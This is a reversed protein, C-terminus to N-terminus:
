IIREFEDSDFEKYKQQYIASEKKDKAKKYKEKFYDLSILKYLNNIESKISEKQATEEDVSLFLEGYKDFLEKPLNKGSIVKPDFEEILRKLVPTTIIRQVNANKLLEPSTKLLLSIFREEKTEQYGKSNQSQPTRPTNTKAEPEMKEVEEAVAMDTVELLKAVKHIYHEKIIVNEIEALIPTLELSIKRKGETTEKDYKEFVKEIIFDWVPVAENIKEKLFDPNNKAAEDPDKYIGLKAVKVNFGLNELIKIGRISAKVGAFDSDLAMVIDKTYRSLLRAQDQTFASGKIAVINKIGIQYASILDIEGEVVVAFNAKKIFDKTINLGYLSTSKNYVPTQPSNIYKGTKPNGPPLQRGALAIVNGRHDSIPFIIRGEFRDYIKNNKTVYIVGAKKLDSIKYKKKKVLFESLTNKKAPAFGINFIRMSDDSIKRENKLYNLATKGIPHSTLLYNYFKASLSNIEYLIDKESSSIGSRNTLKVGAKEALFKLAESFEMGEYKELFTFVDGAEGCAFCKYIQLEPSVMFSPTKEQHFPCLAKFNSGSKTLQIHENIIDVINIKSKIEEIQSDPM